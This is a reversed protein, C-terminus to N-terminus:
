RCHARMPESEPRRVAPSPRVRDPPPTPVGTLLACAAAYTLGVAKRSGRFLHQILVGGSAFATEGIATERGNCRRQEDESVCTARSVSCRVSAEGRLGLRCVPTVGFEVGIAIGLAEIGPLEQKCLDFSSRMAAAALVASRVTLQEDISQPAGEALIGHLCDGIFRVKRGGFDERLVAALEGRLVHLNAVAQAVQGEAIAQDIYRTFGDIDAFVAALPM